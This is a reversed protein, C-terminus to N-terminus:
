EVDIYHASGVITFVESEKDYFIWNFQPTLSDISYIAEKYVEGTNGDHLRVIAISENQNYYGYYRYSTSVIDGNDIEEINLILEDFRGSNEDNLRYFYEWTSQSYVSIGSIAIVLVILLKIYKKM